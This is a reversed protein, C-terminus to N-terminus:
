RSIRVSSVGAALDIELKSGSTNFDESYYSDGDRRLGQRELTPRLLANTTNIRLGVSRPVILELSAAGTSINAKMHQEEPFKIKVSSAGTSLELLRLRVRSLDIDASCAGAKVHIDYTTDHSLEFSWDYGGDIPTSDSSSQKATIAAKTGSQVVNWEPQREIFDLRAQVLASHGGSITLRGASFSIDVSAEEVGQQKPIERYFQSVAASRPLVRVHQNFGLWRAAINLTGSAFVVVFALLVVWFSPGKGKLILSAGLVMLLVPWFNRAVLLITGSDFWGQNVGLLYVGLVVLIVGDWLRSPKM